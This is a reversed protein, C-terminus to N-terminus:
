QDSFTPIYDRTHKIIIIIERDGLIKYCYHIVQFCCLLELCQLTNLTVICDISYRNMHQRKMIALEMVCQMLSCLFQILNRALMHEMLHWHFMMSTEKKRYKHTEKWHFM